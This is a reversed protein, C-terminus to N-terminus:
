EVISGQDTNKPLQSSAQSNIENIVAAVEGFPRHSLATM